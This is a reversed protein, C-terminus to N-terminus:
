VAEVSQIAKNFVALELPVGLERALEAALDVSVGSVEGTGADRRALLPNGLNISARLPGSPALDQPLSMAPKTFLLIIRNYSTRHVTSYEATNQLSRICAAAEDRAAGGSAALATRAKQRPTPGLRHNALS